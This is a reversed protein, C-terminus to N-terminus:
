RYNGVKTDKRGNTIINYSNFIYNIFIVQMNNDEELNELNELNEEVLKKNQHTKVIWQRICIKM